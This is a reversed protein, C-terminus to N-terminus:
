WWGGFRRDSVFEGLSVMRAVTRGALLAPGALVAVLVRGDHVQTAVVWELGTIVVAAILTRVVAGMAYSTRRLRRAARRTASHLYSLGALLGVGALVALTIVVDHQNM